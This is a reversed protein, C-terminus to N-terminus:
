VVGQEVDRISKSSNCDDGRSLGHVRLNRFRNVRSLLDKCCAEHFFVVEIAVGRAQVASIVSGFGPAGSVLVLTDGQRTYECMDWTMQAVLRRRVIEDFVARAERSGRHSVTIVEIGSRRLVNYFSMRKRRDDRVEGCYFRVCKAPRQNLLWPKLAKFDYRIDLGMNCSAHFLYDGDILVCVESSMFRGVM